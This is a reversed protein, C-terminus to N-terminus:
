FFHRKPVQWQIVIKTHGIGVGEWFQIGIEMHSQEWHEMGSVQLGKQFPFIKKVCFLFSSQHLVNM